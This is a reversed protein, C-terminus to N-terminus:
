SHNIPSTFYKSADQMFAEDSKVYATDRRQGSRRGTRTQYPWEPHFLKQIL